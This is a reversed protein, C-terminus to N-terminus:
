PSDHGRSLSRHNPSTPETRPLIRGSRTSIQMTTAPDPKPVGFASRRPDQSDYRGSPRRPHNQNSQGHDSCGNDLVRRRPNSWPAKVRLIPATGARKRVAIMKENAWTSSSPTRAGTTSKGIARTRPYRRSRVPFSAAPM